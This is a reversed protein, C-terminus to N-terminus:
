DIVLIILILPSDHEWGVGTSPRRARSRLLGVEGQRCIELLSADCSGNVLATPYQNLPWRPSSLAVRNGIEHAMEQSRAFPYKNSRFGTM